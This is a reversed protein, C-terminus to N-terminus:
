GAVPALWVAPRSVTVGVRAASGSLAASRSADASATPTACTCTSPTPSATGARAANSTTNRACWASCTRPACCRGEDKKLRKVPQGLGTFFREAKDVDEPTRVVYSFASADRRADMVLVHGPCLEEIARKQANMGTGYRQFLDERLPLYRLTHAVGVMNAPAPRLPRVGDVSMHPLGRARLQASLTAVTVSRLGAELGPDLLPGAAGYAADREAPDPKPMAGYPELPPGATVPSRLRGTTLGGGTVEVEVM